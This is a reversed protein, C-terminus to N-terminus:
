SSTLLATDSSVNRAPTHTHITYLACVSLIATTYVLDGLFMNRFFPLGLEYSYLLGAFSKEYWPSFWWVATNTVLFFLLSSSILLYGFTLINKYKRVLLSILAIMMFSGYVSLMMGPAYFGILYDTMLLVALPLLVAAKRGLYISSTFALATLPTANPLHPLLRGAIGILMLGGIFLLTSYTTHM